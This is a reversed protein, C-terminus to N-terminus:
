PETGGKDAILTVVGERLTRGNEGTWRIAVSVKKLRLAPDAGPKITVVPTANVLKDLDLASSVFSAKARDTLADFPLARLTEIENQVAQRAIAYERLTRIRDLGLHYTQLVGMLGVSLIFIAVMLEILSYGSRQARTNRKLNHTM